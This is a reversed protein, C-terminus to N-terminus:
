NWARLSGINGKTSYSVIQVVAKGTDKVTLPFPAELGTEQEKITVFAQHPRKAKGDEKATLIIKVTDTSGLGVPKTLPAKQSFRRLRTDTISTQPLPM